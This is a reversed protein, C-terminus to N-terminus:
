ETNWNNWHKWMRQTLKVRQAFGFNIFFTLRMLEEFSTEDVKFELCTKDEWRNSM